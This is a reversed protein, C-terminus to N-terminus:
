CRVMEDKKDKDDKLEPNVESPAPTPTQPPEGGKAPVEVVAKREEARARGPGDGDM